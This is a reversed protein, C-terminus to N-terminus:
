AEAFVLRLLRVSAVMLQDNLSSHVIELLGKGNRDFWFPMREYAASLHSAPSISILRHDDECLLRVKLVDDSARSADTYDFELIYASAELQGLDLHVDGAVDFKFERVVEKRARFLELGRSNGPHLFMGNALHSSRAPEWPEFNALDLIRDYGHDKMMKVFEVDAGDFEIVLPPRAKALIESAGRVALHEAGEIDMKIVDPMRGIRCAYDDLTLTQVPYGPSGGFDHVISDAVHDAGFHLEVIEGSRDAVAVNEIMVNFANSRNLNVHLLPLVRPSAEFGVVRGFPGVLQGLRASIVGLNAGVDFALDGPKTLRSLALQVNSEYWDPKQWAPTSTPRLSSLEAEIAALRAGTSNPKL